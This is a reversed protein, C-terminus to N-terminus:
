RVPYEEPIALRYLRRDNRLFEISAPIGIPLSTLLKQLDDISSVPQDGFGVIIDDVELGADEAPSGPEVTLVEIGRTQTLEYKSAVTPSIPVPRAHLGLYRYDPQSHPPEGNTIFHQWFRSHM